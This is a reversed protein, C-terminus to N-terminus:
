RCYTRWLESLTETACWWSCHRPCQNMRRPASCTRIDANRDAVVANRDVRHEIRQQRCRRRVVADHRVHLARAALAMALVLGVLTGQEGLLPKIDTDARCLVRLAAATPGLHPLPLAFDGRRVPILAMGLGVSFETWKDDLKLLGFTDANYFACM